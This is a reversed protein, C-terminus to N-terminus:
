SHMNGTKSRKCVKTEENAKDEVTASSLAKKTTHQNLPPTSLLQSAPESEVKIIEEAVREFARSIDSTNDFSIVQVFPLRTLEQLLADITVFSAFPDYGPPTNSLTHTHM